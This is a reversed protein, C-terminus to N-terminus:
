NKIIKFTKIEKTNEIIKLFYTAPILNTISIQTENGDVKNDGILKGNIDYICFSLNEYRYNAIKLKLVDNTPNPFVSCEVNIGKAEEIGTVVLIEFPQQVGQYDSGSAGRNTTYAIQGLTYSVSGDNGLANGGSVAIAEQANIFLPITLGLLILIKKKM